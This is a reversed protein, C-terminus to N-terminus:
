AMVDVLYEYQSPLKSKLVYIFRSNEANIVALREICRIDVLKRGIIKESVPECLEYIIQVNFLLLDRLDEGRFLLFFCCSEYLAKEVFCFAAIFM